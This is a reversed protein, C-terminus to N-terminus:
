ETTRFLYVNEKNKMLRYLYAKLTAERYSKIIPNSVVVEYDCLVVIDVDCLQKILKDWDDETDVWDDIEAISIKRIVKQGVDFLCYDYSYDLVNEMNGDFVPIESLNISEYDCNLLFKQYIYKNM